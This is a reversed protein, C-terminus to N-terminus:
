VLKELAYGYITLDDSFQVYIFEGDANIYKAVIHNDQDEEPIKDYLDQNRFTTRYYINVV